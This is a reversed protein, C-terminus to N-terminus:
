SSTLATASYVHIYWVDVVSPKRKLPIRPGGLFTKLDSKSSPRFSWNMCPKRICTYDMWPPMYSLFGLGNTRELAGFSRRFSGGFSGTGFMIDIHEHQQVVPWCWKIEGEPCPSIVQASLNVFDTSVYVLIGSGCVVIHHGGEM